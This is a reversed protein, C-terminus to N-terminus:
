LNFALCLANREYRDSSAAHVVTKLSLSRHKPLKVAGLHLNASFTIWYTYQAAREKLIPM